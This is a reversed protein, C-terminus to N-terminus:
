PGSCQWSPWIAPYTVVVLRATGLALDRATQTNTRNVAMTAGCAPCVLRFRRDRRLIVQAIDATMTVKEVVYGPFPFLARIGHVYM